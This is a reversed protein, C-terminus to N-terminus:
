GRVLAKQLSLKSNQIFVLKHFKRRIFQTKPTFNLLEKVIGKNQLNEGINIELLKITKPKLNLDTVGKSNLKTLHLKFNREKKKALPNELTGAGNTSFATQRKEM